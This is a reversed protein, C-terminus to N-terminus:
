SVVVVRAQQMRDKATNAFGEESFDVPNLHAGAARATCEGVRAEKNIGFATHFCAHLQVSSAAARAGCCAGWSRQM